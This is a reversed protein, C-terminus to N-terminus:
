VSIGDIVGQHRRATVVLNGMFRIYSSFAFVGVERQMEGMKFNFDRHIVFNLFNSNVFYMRGSPVHTDWVLPIGSFSLANQFGPFGFGADTKKQDQYTLRVLDQLQDEYAEHVAQTTFIALGGAEKMGVGELVDNRMTRMTKRLNLATVGSTVRQPAWTPYDAEALKGVTNASTSILTPLGDLKKGAQATFVDTELGERMSREANKVKQRFLDFIKTESDSNVAVEHDSITIGQAYLRWDYFATTVEDTPAATVEDYYTYAQLNPNKLYEIPWAIERGGALMKVRGGALLYGLIPISTFINDVVEKHIKELTASARADWVKTVSVGAM